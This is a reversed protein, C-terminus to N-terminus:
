CRAEEFPVSGATDGVTGSAPSYIEASAKVSEVSAIPKGAEITEGEDVLVEVFVIDSLQSQAYDTIGVSGVGGEVRVWEHDKTYKLESPYM